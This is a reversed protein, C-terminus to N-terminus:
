SPSPAADTITVSGTAIPADAALGVTLRYAGPMISWRGQRYRPLLRPDAAITIRRTEGPALDTSQWGVLRAPAHEPGVLYLQPVATTARAATNRLTLSVQPHAGGAFRVDDCTVRGYGLGYGFPFLPTEHRLGFWRYGVDAREPYAIPHAPDAPGTRPLQAASRPFTLPLRGAFDIDGTLLRALAEGGRQGPYWAAVVAAVRDLWPMLVAGGTELVVVTAPNAKAVAGILADQNDPLALGPLDQAETRWQTAFVIAVDARAAAAAAAPVDRGDVYDITVGPMAAQLARLPSSAHWTVRAFSMATGETLPIELPIGGVSRVQSSGGGSLVGVDAHGGILVVHRAKRALPLVDRALPLVNRTNKLLVMGREAVRQAVAADAAAAIPQPTAPVPDDVLGTAIAATLIRTVMEDLRREPVRGATISAGLADAFYIRDDLEQGSEQDLGALAAQDTSHVAGWDSMVFGPYHWENRLVDTLLWPNECAYIGNVKNYACMVSGPQGDEIAIHFALLDSEQLAEHDLRADLVDRGTEQANFAFHKVTAIIHNSQVGAVAAGAMIGSLLPDEGFYEFNRGGWADRTLNVGGALLVNFTKARAESGIMAGASRALVPDFTAALALTGPLATATDGPRQEVNNAVGLSADSERLDPIGLRPVGPVHGAANAMQPPRPKQYPPFYGHVYQLKEARTMKRVIAAARTAPDAATDPTRALTVQSAIGIWLTGALALLRISM